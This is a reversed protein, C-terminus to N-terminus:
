SKLTTAKWLTGRYADKRGGMRAVHGAWRMRRSKIMRIINQSPYLDYLEDNHLKRWEATVKGRWLGIIKRLVSNEFVRLRHEERSTVSLNEYGCLVVRLIITRYIKININKLLSSSFLFNQM